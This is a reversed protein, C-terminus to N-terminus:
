SKKFTMLVASQHNACRESISQTMNFWVNKARGTPPARLHEDKLDPWDKLNRLTTTTGFM